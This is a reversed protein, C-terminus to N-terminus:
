IGVRGEAFIRLVRDVNSIGWIRGVARGAGGRTREAIHHLWVLGVMARTADQDEFWNVDSTSGAGLALWPREDVRWHPAWILDATVAGIAEGCMLMRTALALSCADFGAPANSRANGWAQAGVVAASAGDVRGAPSSPLSFSLNQPSLNGHCWGLEAARGLWFRRQEGVFAEIADRRERQVRASRGPLELGAAPRDVWQKLWVDDVLSSTATLAHLAGFTSSAAGLASAKLAPNRLATVGDLGPSFTEICHVSGPARGVALLSPVVGALGDLRRDARLLELNDISRELYATGVADGAIRLVADAGNPRLAGQSLNSRAVADGLYIAVTAEPGPETRVPRWGGRGASGSQQLLLRLDAESPVPKHLDGHSSLFHSAFGGASSALALMWDRVSHRPSIAVLVVAIGCLVTVLGVLWGYAMGLPGYKGVLVSGVLLAIAVVMVEVVAVSVMWGKTRAISLYISVLASAVSALAFVRLISAGDDAYSSGFLGMIQPAFPVILVILGILPVMSLVVADAALARLRNTDNAGEALLSTGMSGGVYYLSTFITWAVFFSASEAAGVLNLVILPTAIWALTVSESGVYDWGYFRAMARRDIIPAHVAQKGHHPLLRKFILLNVAAVFVIVPATWAIAIGEWGMGAAALPLLLAIKAISYVTKSAIVWVSQRLGSLVSDQLAFISWIAVAVVFWTAVAASETLVELKPLFAGVFFLFVCAAIVSATVGVVYTFVILRGAGAGVSPVFRVLLNGFNLQAANSLNVITATIAGGLGITEPTCYRAALFWFALGLVASLGTNAILAYSNRLLSSRTLALKIAALSRVIGGRTTAIWGAPWQEGPMTPPRVTM